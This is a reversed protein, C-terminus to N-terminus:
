CLGVCRLDNEVLQRLYDSRRVGLQAARADIADIRSKPEKFSVQQLPEECLPPRGAGTTTKGPDGELVGRTAKDDIEAIREKSISFMTELEHATKM